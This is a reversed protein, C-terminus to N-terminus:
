GARGTQMPTVPDAPTASQRKRIIILRLLLYAISNYLCPVFNVRRVRLAAQIVAAGSATSTAATARGAAACM